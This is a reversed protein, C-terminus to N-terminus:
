QDRQITREILVPGARGKWTQRVLAEAADLRAKAAGAGGADQRTSIRVVVPADGLSAATQELARAFAATPRGDAFAAATLDLRVVRGLAAGFNLKAMKGPTVRITRPNETTVRYGSPLSRTDLKLTFNAGTQGPLEACPVHFRGFKDTQILTGNPTALRVDPIGPEEAEAGRGYAAGDIPDQYGNMNRDDFVKGIIDACEFVHEPERIVVAEAVNSSRQGARDLLWTKNTLPGYPAAGLVRAAFRVTITGGAPLTGAQWRLFRGSVEPELPTGDLTASGPTYVLGDPMRDVLVVERMARPADNTFTLVYSVTEGIVAREPSATKTATVDTPVYLEVVTPTDNDVETGSVDTVPVDPDGPNTGSVRATNTVQGRELDAATLAYRATFTTSDTEGPALADIPGGSVVVGALDDTLTVDTLTVNGTNTVTFRYLLEDGLAPRTSVSEDAVEKVLAIGPTQPVVSLTPEDNEATTGSIDEVTGPEGDPARYAGTARATNEIVGRDLDAQTLAYSASYTVSDSEGPALRGIPSGSLVLGPLSTDSVTVDTLTVNGTNTVTFSYRVPDGIAAPSGIGSVDATKVLAIGPVPTFEADTPDDNEIETGSMDTVTDDTGDPTRYSGTVLATNSVRGLDLDEQTLLYRASYTTSDSEGPALRAIPAGTLVLGALSDDTVTVDTLTVSGTNTVTFSYTLPDGVAPPSSVASADVAKVLAVSPAQEVPAVTPDDSGADTGSVDEVQTERGNGDTHLGTALATNEVFGRDLDEQTLTYRASYAASDSEGPALRAIPSGTLVLGPLSTDTVTVDTLTVNGTNTLTFSYTLAEGVEAPNGLGSLDVTKVLALAPAPEIVAETPTDNGVETGSLDEVETEGGTGDTYTGTVLATNQVFGRDLDEQTLAYSATYTTTDSANPALRAITGGTLTLGPLSTDTVTVDTLTVNGTNTVAFSYTLLDGVAAPSSVASVDVTKVLAISPLADLDARTATDNTAETGSIDEVETEAGAGDTYTGTVLATNEVFGRDIDAQKLAYTATYTTADTANPALSPIPDGTLVLGALSDDTVTVDTLTVNGTNTVTFSYTLLEGVAAPSSVASADVTKVLVIAPATDLDARTVTDNTAESGSIDQVETEAGAGDTYTGTVLATNEVYGRDIDAQKLAYTATYTTADTANPALSPIPDGTLVLGALSDDTVTVDTLTVNGTNTVAFSYTLLDGVAAPSSVASADVTKVLAVSPATDLDARTGTDNSAETGSIDEVETKAGAGDTHTGTVLATNEVFGRDIDAQTLAYTATYATADTAGPALTPIPSGTLVLGALSEDTVTVGTLTVNGTNTVAFSYTLLDGVAAPSSVASADVTKVLAISPAAELDARTGTDNTAETGSVDEVATETGAGDTYTGTVLATNEVFGRDIDAQKLAYTATYTTADTANPALSPIPDGTLVLDALSDDTVTVDTLTVNGTNTVTFSYTLLDGVAAPSSIATADVAKVLAITPTTGLNARTATDNAAATGSVDEVETETGAGDTYTGTALATNEVYGRDIDAQKLAYTASYTTADTANPALSPIPDGTLVLGALSEDTVTVDTLTVNGTNTVTFSYTLLDGVAAPSSVASVDVAKVLAISPLADLNARTPTDNSTDTGSTDEVETETGAGDTYTGTALATNEVFGRDIDAQTLTYSATYSTSDTANPALSAIPSGTLVLDALSDDTVTVDTLTVNGTNTVAFGFTLVDGAVVPSSLGSLDVTKVLAIAPAAEVDTRTPLDNTAETGSVDEVETEAGNGDVHTGTVLATNEVSGRDIDAQKLAYTATFTTADSEGPALTIPGGSLVIGPLSTDTVTVDELTVNGTNTVTFSYTLPEGLVAPSSVGSADVAKVLTIAPAPPVTAVTPADNSAETGSRDTVEAPTGGPGAYTGTALATNEVFGRDLDEQKLSYSATFTTSDSEGPALTAIPGGTLVLDPLSDDSVTVDTLTVNGANTVSFTYALVDGVAAPSSLGTTDVEKVLTIAPAIDLPTTVSDEATVPLRGGGQVQVYGTVSADNTFSGADVDAQTLEYTATFSTTDSAGGALSIPGGTVQVGPVADTLTVDTLPAVGVNTVTFSYRITEGALPPSSLGSEDATKVLTIAGIQVTTPTDNTTTTGSLDSVTVPAGGSNRTWTGTATAQNEVLGADIDASTLLYTASFTSTDTEGPLLVPITLGDFAGPLMPDALTVDTLPVNGTNTVAFSFLIPDGPAIPDSFGSTDATKVVAIAPAYTVNVPTPDDEGPDNPYGNGNPDPNSGNDSLDSVPKGSLQGEADLQAQNRYRPSASYPLPIEPRVQLTLTITCSAGAALTGGSVLETAGAGTYGSNLGGCSGGPASVLGYEGPQLSSLDPNYTGFGPLNGQLVDTVTLGQVPEVSFNRVSFAFGVRFAGDARLAPQSSVRKAIGVTPIARVTFDYGTLDEDPGLAVSGIVTASSATGSGSAPVLAALDEHRAPISGTRTITYTGEALLGFSYGGSADTTTTRTVPAGTLDTGSLQIGIGALGTDTGARTGDENFDRWVAGALSSGTIEVSGSNSNNSPVRDDSDTTVSASNTFSQPTSTIATVRVPLTVVAEAGPSLTGFSCSVTTGGAAGTCSTSSASGSSITVSPAGTLVMGSPLSDTFVVNDAESYQPGSTNRIVVDFNFDERLPVSPASPTKSVVQVDVRTRVTTNQTATNNNIRSEFEDARDSTVSATNTESGKAEARMTVEFTRSEGSALYPVSCIVEGSITGPAPTTGCVGDAPASAQVFSLRTAPLTDTVVVNEAASPGNNTVLIRYVTEDGVTVPDVTDIKAILLDFSPFTVEVSAEAANNTEDTETTSTTVEARNVLTSKLLSLLPRVVVTVTQQSGNNITGLNCVVQNNGGSTASGAAPQTACSGTSPSASLFVLGEPLTDTVTVNEAQSLGNALNKATLVYSLSQGVAVPDPNALKELTVDARPEVTFSASASNNASDPDATSQSVVTATNTRTGANGGPTTVITIRPCDLGPTCVPLTDFSCSATVSTAGTTTGVCSAATAAFPEVAISVLGNGAGSTAGNALGTLPDSFRVDTAETPGVNTIEIEFTQPEGAIATAATSKTLGINASLPPESVTVDAGGSNNGPTTDELTGDVTEVSATNRVPGDQLAVATLVLDPVRGGAALPAAGDYPRECVLDAPGTVPLPACSWGSGAVSEITLDAPVADTVRVTGDFGANGRNTVGIRYEFPHGSVALAPSPASKSLALDVFPAEITVSVSSSNNGPVPDTTNAASVTAINLPTGPDVALATIRIEGLSVDEGAGTTPAPRACTVTGGSEGCTWGADAQVSVFSYASPLPDTVTVMGGPADGRYSPSLIFVLEDGVLITGSPTRSKVIRLDSGATISTSATALNNTSDADAPEQGMVAVSAAVTSNAGATVQGAFDFTVSDGVAIPGTVRCLFTGGSRTCGAPATMDVVGTPIPFDIEFAESTHPGENELRVEYHVTGGSPVTTDATLSVSIDAGREVTTTVEEYNNGALADADPVRAFFVFTGEDLTEFAVDVVTSEDEALAPIACDVVSGVVACNDSSLDPRFITNAPINTEVRTPPADATGTNQVDVKYLAVGGAAIALGASGDLQVRWDYDVAEQAQALGTLLWLFAPVITAGFAVAAATKRSHRNWM